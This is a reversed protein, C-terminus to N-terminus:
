LDIDNLYPFNWALWSARVVDFKDWARYDYGRIRKEKAPKKEADSPKTVKKKKKMQLSNRIPPL